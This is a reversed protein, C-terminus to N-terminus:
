GSSALAHEAGAGQIVAVLQPVGTGTGGIGAAGAGAAHPVLQLLM